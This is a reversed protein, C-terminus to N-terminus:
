TDPFQYQLFNFTLCNPDSANLSHPWGIKACVLRKIRSYEIETMSIADDENFRFGEFMNIRSYEIETMSIADDENFRFGEFM